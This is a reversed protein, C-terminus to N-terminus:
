VLVPDVFEAYDPVGGYRGSMYRRAMNERTRPSFDALAVLTSQGAADKQTLWIEDRGLQAGNGYGADM